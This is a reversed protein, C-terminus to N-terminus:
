GTVEQIIEGLSNLATGPQAGKDLLADYEEETLDRLVKVAAELKRIDAKKM